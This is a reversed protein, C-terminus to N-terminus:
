RKLVRMWYGDYGLQNGLPLYALSVLLTISLVTRICENSILGRFKAIMQKDVDPNLSGFGGIAAPQHNSNM